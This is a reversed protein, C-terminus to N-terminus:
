IHNDIIPVSTFESMVKVLKINLHTHVSKYVCELATDPIIDQEGYLAGYKRDTM